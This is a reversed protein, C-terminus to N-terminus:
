IHTWAKRNIIRSIYSKSIGYKDALQQHTLCQEVHMQRMNIIDQETFISQGHRSGRPIVGQRPKGPTPGPKIQEYQEITHYKHLCDLCKCYRKTIQEHHETCVVRTNKSNCKRCKM